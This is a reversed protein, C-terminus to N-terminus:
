ITDDSWLINQVVSEDQIIQLLIKAFQSGQYNPESHGFHDRLRRRITRRPTTKGVYLAVPKRTSVGRYRYGQLPLQCRRLILYVGPADPYELAAERYPRAESINSRLQRLAQRVAPDDKHMALLDLADSKGIARLAKKSNM